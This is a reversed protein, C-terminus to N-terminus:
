LGFTRVLFVAMQARTVPNDPCYNGGGCGGTIGEAALQEIWGAAWYDNAVDTFVGSAPPPTYSAGHRARLLFVAMQARTVTGNPCFAGGGCGGTIGDLFLAEIYAAAFSNAPVDVFLQGTATPPTFGSGHIGRELFVAMQARSVPDEPCYNANGCGGTIGSLALSEVFTFAFYDQPVDVFGLPFADLDDPVGDNDDDPDCADGEGDGDTDKQDPNALAPCNDDADPIGDGDTDAPNVTVQVDDTDSADGDTVQLRLVFVGTVDPTVSASASTSNIIDIDTLASGAPVTVFSWSYSLPNPLLDPDFSGTGDLSVPDGLAVVQDPGADAVPPVNVSAPSITATTSASVSVGDSNTVTLMVTYTGEAAYTHQPTVGSGTSADGFDWSYSTITSGVDSSGSGDFAVPVGASGTYPGGPDAILQSCDADASDVAGDGDNDLGTPGFKNEATCPSTLDIGSLGYNFPVTDEGVLTAGSESTHCSFCSSVGASDHVRRLGAGSGCHEGDADPANFACIGSEDEQRGHCGVCSQPKDANDSLSLNVRSFDNGSHCVDCSGGGSIFQMHGAMLDTGWATADRNSVYNGSDFVGHCDDCGNDYREWAAAPGAWAVLCLGIWLLAALPGPSQRGEPKVIFGDHRDVARGREPKNVPSHTDNTALRYKM